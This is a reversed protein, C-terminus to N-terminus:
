RGAQYRFNLIMNRSRDAVLLEDGDIAGDFYAHKKLARSLGNRM